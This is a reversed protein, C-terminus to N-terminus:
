GTGEITITFSFDKIESISPSISLTLVAGLVADPNVNADEKDWSLNIHDEAEPPNWGSCTMKLTLPANGTNKVYLTKAVSDGPELIKWNVESVTDTCGSDWYVEVDIAKMAGRIEITTSATLLGMIAAGEELAFHKLANIFTYSCM